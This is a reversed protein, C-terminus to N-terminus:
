SPECSSVFVGLLSRRGGQAQRLATREKLPAFFPCDKSLSLVLPKHFGSPAKTDEHSGWYHSVEVNSNATPLVAAIVL